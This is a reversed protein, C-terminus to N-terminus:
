ICNRKQQNPKSFSPKVSRCKKCFVSRFQFNGRRTTIDAMQYSEWGSEGTASSPLKEEPIHECVGTSIQFNVASCEPTRLCWLVCHTKQVGSEVRLFDKSDPLVMRQDSRKHYFAAVSWAKTQKTFSLLIAGLLLTKTMMCIWCIM